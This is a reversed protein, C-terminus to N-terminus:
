TSARMPFVRASVFPETAILMGRAFPCATGREAHCVTFFHVAKLSRCHFFSEILLQFADVGIRGAALVENKGVGLIRVHGEGDTRGAFGRFGM